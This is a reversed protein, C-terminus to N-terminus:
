SVLAASVTKTRPHVGVSEGIGGVALLPSITDWVVLRGRDRTLTFLGSAHIHENLLRFAHWRPGGPHDEQRAEYVAGYFCVMFDELIQTDTFIGATVLDHYFARSYVQQAKREFDTHIIKGRAHRLANLGKLAVWAVVRPKGHLVKPTGTPATFPAAFYEAREKATPLARAEGSLDALAQNPNTGDVLDIIAPLTERM